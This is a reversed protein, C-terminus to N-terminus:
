GRDKLCAKLRAKLDAPMEPAPLRELMNRTQRLTDLCNRCCGCEELHRLLDALEKGSLEGDLHASIKDALKICDGKM